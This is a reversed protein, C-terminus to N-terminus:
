REHSGLSRVDQGLGETRYMIPSVEFIKPGFHPFIDKRNM